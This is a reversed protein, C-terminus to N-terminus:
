RAYGDKYLIVVVWVDSPAQSVERVFDSGSIPVVSGFRLKLQKRRRLWDRRGTLACHKTSGIAEKFQQVQSQSALGVSGSHLPLPLLTNRRRPDSFLCPAPSFSSAARISLFM